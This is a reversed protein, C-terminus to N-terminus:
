NAQRHPIGRNQTEGRARSMPYCTPKEQPAPRRYARIPVQSCPQACIFRPLDYLVVTAWENKTRPFPHISPHICLPTMKQSNSYKNVTMYFYFLQAAFFSCAM